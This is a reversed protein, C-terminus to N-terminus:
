ACAPPRTIWNSSARTCRRGPFERLTQVLTQSAVPPIRFRGGYVPDGVLPYGIHSM